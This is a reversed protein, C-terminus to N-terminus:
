VMKLVVAEVQQLKCGCKMNHRTNGLRVALSVQLRQVRPVLVPEDVVGRLVAAVHRDQDQVAVAVRHGDFFDM